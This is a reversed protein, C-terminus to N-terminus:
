LPADEDPLAGWPAAERIITRVTRRGEGDPSTLGTRDFYELVEITLNRGIGTADRFAGATFGGGNAARTADGALAALRRMQGASFFRNDSVQVVLRRRALGGLRRRLEKVGFGLPIALENLTPPRLGPGDAAGDLLPRLREWFAQEEGALVLERGALAVMGHRRTVAGTEGLRALVAGFLGPSLGGRLTAEAPGAAEPHADHWRGLAARVAHLAANWRGPAIGHRRGRATFVTMAPDSALAAMDGAALNRALGFRDLDVGGAPLELLGALADAPDSRDLAALRALREPRGRGRARAFPDVVRGGAITRRASVDRLILRDHGLAGLRRDLVLQVLGDEGAAITRRGLAFVRGRTEAAGLHVHVAAGRGLGKTEGELVRIRADVRSTPAHLGPAVIWDGRQIVGKAVGRGTINLACRQGARAETATRDHARIGRIRIALGSPSLVLHDGRAARGAVVAGGVVLGVGALTFCRDISFRFGGRRDGPRRQRAADALHAGLAAVGDGRPAAVPFVPAGALSTGALLAATQDAVEAVRAPDALDTKSIAVAGEAVGLLDLIALHERTQPMVGDDAAVVLLAFDIAAVGALMNRIFREHGPVDVFGLVTGDDLHGDQDLHVYAFGPEITLGRRKEEPLRDTDVGSLAKVLVTKGHDVHGATAVIM